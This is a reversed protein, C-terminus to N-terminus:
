RAVTAETGPLFDVKANLEPTLFSDPNQIQVKVQLTGKQRNAEPAIEAVYGDYAKDPYAEPSVKCKQEKFVKALDSENLDHLVDLDVDNAAFTEVYKGLGLEELWKRVDRAM